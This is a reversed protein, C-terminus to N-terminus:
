DSADNEVTEEAEGGSGSGSESGSNSDDSDKLAKSKVNKKPRM